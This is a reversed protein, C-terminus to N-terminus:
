AKGGFALGRAAVYGAKFTASRTDDHSILERTAGDYTYAAQAVADYLRTAGARPLQNYLWVGPEPTGGGPRPGGPGM